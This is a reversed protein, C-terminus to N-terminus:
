CKTRWSVGASPLAAATGSKASASTPCCRATRVDAGVSEPATSGGGANDRGANHRCGHRRDHRLTTWQEAPAQALVISGAVSPVSGSSTPLHRARVPFRDVASLREARCTLRKGRPPDTDRVPGALLVRQPQAFRVPSAERELHVEPGLSRSVVQQGQVGEGEQVAKHPALHVEAPVQVQQRIDPVVGLQGHREPLEDRLQQLTFREQELADRAGAHVDFGVVVDRLFRQVDIEIRHVHRIGAAHELARVM